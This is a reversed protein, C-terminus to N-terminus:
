EEVKTTQERLGKKVSLSLNLVYSIRVRQKGEKTKGVKIKVPDLSGIKGLVVRDGRKLHWALVNVLEKVIMLVYRRPIDLRTYVENTYQIVGENM